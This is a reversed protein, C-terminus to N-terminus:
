RKGPNKKARRALIGALIQVGDALLLGVVVGVFIM